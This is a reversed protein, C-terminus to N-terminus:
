IIKMTWIKHAFSDGGIILVLFLMKNNIKKRVFTCFPFSAWHVLLTSTFVQFSLTQVGNNACARILVKWERWSSVILALINLVCM